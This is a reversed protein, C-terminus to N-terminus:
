RAQDSDPPNATAGNEEAPALEAIILSANEFVAQGMAQVQEPTMAELVAPYDTFLEYDLGAQEYHHILGLWESNVRLSTRYDQLMTQATRDVEATTVGDELMGDLIARAARILEDTRAPDCTFSINAEFLGIPRRGLSLSAGVSYVGGLNERLEERLRVSLIEEFFALKRQAMKSWPFPKHFKLQVQTKNETGWQRVFEHQGEILRIHRDVWTEKEGRGPLSAIWTALLAELKEPDFNGVIAFEFNAANAFRQRYFDLAKGADIQRALEVSWPQKRFHDGFLFKRYADGFRQGVNATRNRQYDLVRTIHSAVIEDDIRPETFYLHVLQLLLELDEPTSAGSIGQEYSNIWTRVSASTGALLKRLETVTFDGIGSDAVLGAAEGASRFNDDDALSVGGPAFARLLIEAQKFDTAKTVVQIGNSLTLRVADIEPVPQRDVISGPRPPTAILSADAISEQWPELKVEPAKALLARLQPELDATLMGNDPGTILLLQPPSQAIERLRGNIDALSIEPLLERILADAQNVSLFPAGTLFHELYDGTLHSSPFNDQDQVTISAQLLLNKKARELESGLLGHHLARHWEELLREFSELVGSEETRATLGFLFQDGALQQLSIGAGLFPPNPARGVEDLRNNLISLLLNNTLSQRYQDRTRAIPLTLRLGLQLTTTNAEPDTALVFRLQDPVPLPWDRPKGPRRNDLTGLSQEMLRKILGPEFDGVAVLAMNRPQYWRRYFARLQETSIGALTERTGIPQRELYRSDAYLAPRIVEQLREGLGKRARWEEVVVPREQEVDAPDLSLYHAWDTLVQFARPLNDPEDLPVELVYLTRDFGTYANLHSGFRMGISQFWDILENRAFHRSGNFAMHELYHAIGQEDSQEELSGVRVVLRLSARQAPRGNARIYYTLGNDLQGHLVAPDLPLRQENQAAESESTAPALSQCGGLLLVVCLCFFRIPVPM